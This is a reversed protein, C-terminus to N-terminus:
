PEPRNMACADSSRSPVSRRRRSNTAVSVVYPLLRRAEWLAIIALDNAIVNAIAHVDIASM